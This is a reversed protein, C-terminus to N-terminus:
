GELVEYKGDAIDKEWQDQCKGCVAQAGTPVHVGTEAALLEKRADEDLDLAKLDYEPMTELDPATIDVEDESDVEVKTYGVEVFSDPGPEFVAGCWACETTLEDIM